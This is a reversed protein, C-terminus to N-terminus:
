IAMPHQSSIRPVRDGCTRRVNRNLYLAPPLEITHTGPDFAEGGVVVYYAPFALDKASRRHEALQYPPFLTFLAECGAQRFVGLLVIVVVGCAPVDRSALRGWRLHTL